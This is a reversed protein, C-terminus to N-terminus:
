QFDCPYRESCILFKDFMLETLKIDNTRDEIKNKSEIEIRNLLQLKM